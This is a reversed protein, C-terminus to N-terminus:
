VFRQRQHFRSCQVNHHWAITACRDHSAIEWTPIRTETQIFPTQGSPCLAFPANDALFFTPFDQDIGIPDPQEVCALPSLLPALRDQITIATGATRIWDASSDREVHVLLPGPCVIDGLAAQAPAVIAPCAHRPTVEHM